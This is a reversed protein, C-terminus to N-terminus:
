LTCLDIGCLNGISGLAAQLYNDVDDLDKEGDRDTTRTIM